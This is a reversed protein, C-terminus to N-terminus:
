IGTSCADIVQACPMSGHTCPTHAAVIPAHLHFYLAMHAVAWPKPTIFSRARTHLAHVRLVLLRYPLFRTLGQCRTDVRSLCSRRHPTSHGAQQSSSLTIKCGEDSDVPDGRPEGGRVRVLQQSLPHAHHETLDQQNTVCLSYVHAFRFATRGHDPINSFLM